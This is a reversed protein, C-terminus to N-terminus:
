DLKLPLTIGLKAAYAETQQRLEEYSDALGDAPTSAHESNVILFDLKVEVAAVALMFQERAKEGKFKM